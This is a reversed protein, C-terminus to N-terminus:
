GIYSWPVRLSQHCLIEGVGFEKVALAPVLKELSGTPLGSFLRYRQMVMELRQQQASLNQSGKSFFTRLM